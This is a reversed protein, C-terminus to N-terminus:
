VSVALFVAVVVVVVVVVGVVVRRNALAVVIADHGVVGVIASSKLIRCSASRRKSFLAMKIRKGATGALDFTNIKGFKMKNGM